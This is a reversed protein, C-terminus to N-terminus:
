QFSNTNYYKNNSNSDNNNKDEINNDNRDDKEDEDEYYTFTYLTYQLKLPPFTHHENLAYSITSYKVPRTYGLSDVFVKTM